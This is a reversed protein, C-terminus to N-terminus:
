RDLLELAQAVVNEVTFGFQRFVESGPASAGFRDMGIMRGCRGIWEHWGMPAGAEIAIRRTVDPLIVQDRYEQSQQAFLEWCPMSIVRAKVQHDDLLKQRTQLALHVESGTALILVDPKGDSDALVYAGKAPGEVSQYTEVDLIPLKQRTLMLAKPGDHEIAIRWAAATENADAPRLVLFNPVARLSAVHEIPQHTPGDEGVGISDHTFIWISKTNMLASLRLAPRMYDAFVLFTGGYPIVGSHLAMGNVVTGMAHERVGFRINRGGPNDASQDESGSIITKNSPALDASGGLMTPIQEAIANLVKGSAARTAMPGDEPKFTPIKADWDAPLKGNLVVDLEAADEAFSEGYQAHLKRWSEEAEKGREMANGMYSRVEDPIYFRPDQPWQFREKTAKLADEGLPEGHASAKDQKPSGYGIHTRIMILSPKGTEQQAAKIAEEIAATDNGDDVRQVHWGYAMFRTGVDETFAIATDGEISIHNDDYLYILKGLKLHGALSAAESSVGEMLDGDSVIAYTYHDVVPLGPRNFRSALFREALAMGVGMGFGQGLPGTTAQIGVEDDREPHGPTKSGWQRFNKVEDLSLDYGTLHLMSYLLASGHGASLIFRDRDAWLPNGPNHKLFKDWLVYAMPAAGLPLGPHGSNAQQVADVALMRITTICLEELKSNRESM